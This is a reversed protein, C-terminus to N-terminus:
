FQSCRIELFVWIKLKIAVEIANLESKSTVIYRELLVLVSHKYIKFENVLILTPKKKMNKTRRYKMLVYWFQCNIFVFTETNQKKELIM